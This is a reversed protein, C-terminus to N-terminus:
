KEELARKTVTERLFLLVFDNAGCFPADELNCIGRGLEDAFSHSFSKDSRTGLGHIQQLNSRADRKETFTFINV